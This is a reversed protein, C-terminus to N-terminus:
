DREWPKRAATSKVARGAKQTDYRAQQTLRMKMALQTLRSQCKDRIGILEKYWKLGGPEQLAASSFSAIEGAVLDVSTKLRCYETLLPISGADWWEPPKTATVERWLRSEDDSLSDPPDPRNRVMEAVVSLSASSKRGRQNKM